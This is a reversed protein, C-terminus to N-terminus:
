PRSVLHKSEEHFLNEKKFPNSAWFKPHSNSYVFKRTKRISIKCLNAHLQNHVLDKFLDLQCSAYVHYSDLHGITRM